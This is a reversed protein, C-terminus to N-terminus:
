RAAAVFRDGLSLRPSTLVMTDILRVEGMWAALCAVAPSDHDEAGLEQLSGAEVISFYEPLLGADAIRKMAASEIGQPEEKSRLQQQAWQLTEYLVTATDRQKETLRRNRSSMALGSDERIIPCMVVDVNKHRESAMHKVLAYQQYDKQGMYIGDPKVVELLRSVVQLMGDFHGPRFHGEMTKDLGALDMIVRTDLGPPYISDVEPIFVVDCDHQELLTLDERLVRPYKDLDAQQNFQTPNVFISCVSVQDAQHIQEILSIHGTHLAGMTPAFGIGFGEGRLYDLYAQMKDIDAFVQM